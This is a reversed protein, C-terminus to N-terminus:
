DQFFVGSLCAYPGNMNRLRVVLRGTFRYSFYRGEGGGGVAGGDLFRRDERRDIVQGSEPDLVELAADMGDYPYIAGLWNYFAVTHPAADKAKIEVTMAWHDFLAAGTRLTGSTPELASPSERRGSNIVSFYQSGAMNVSEIFDPLKRVDSWNKPDAALLLYGAQGYRGKWRGLTSDDIGLFEAALGATFTQAGGENAANGKVGLAEVIWTYSKGAALGPVRRDLEWGTDDFVIKKLEPDEAVRVRYSAAGPAARWSLLTEGGATVPRSTKFAAPARPAPEDFFVGALVVGNSTEPRSIKIVISGRYLYQIYKGAKFDTLEFPATLPRRTAGDLVEVTFRREVGEWNVFYLTLAHQDNDRMKLDLYLDQFAALGGLRRTKTTDDSYNLARQDATSLALLTTGKQGRYSLSEAYVPLHNRDRNGPEVCYMVQGDGGYAGQWNGGTTGDIKNMTARSGAAPVAAKARAARSRHRNPDEAIVQYYYTGGPRVDGDNLTTKIIADIRNGLGPTFDERTDRYVQYRVARGDERYSEGWGLTVCGLAASYEAHLGQPTGPLGTEGGPKIEFAMTWGVERTAEGTVDVEVTKGILDAYSEVRAAAGKELTFSKVTWLGREPVKFIARLTEKAIVRFRGKLEKKEADWGTVSGGAAPLLHRTTAMLYPQRAVPHLMVTKLEGARVPTKLTSSGAHRGLDRWDWYDWADYNRGAELGVGGFAPDGGLRAPIVKTRASSHNWLMVLHAGGDLAYDFIEPNPATGEDDAQEFLGIPRATGMGEPLPLIRGIVRIAEPSYRTVSSGLMTKGFMTAMATVQAHLTDDDYPEFNKVDPDILKTVRNRYWERIGRKVVAQTLSVKDRESRKADIVGTAADAGCTVRGSPNESVLLGAGGEEKALAFIKRYASTATAAQDEFGGEVGLLMTGCYDFFLGRVGEAKLRRYTQRVHEQYGPDSFDPLKAPNNYLMHGPHASAYDASPISPQLMLDCSAGLGRMAAVWKAITETPATLHGFAHWHADDWWMQENPDVPLDPELRVLPPAYAALGMDKMLRAERLAGATTNEGVSTSALYWLCVPTMAGYGQPHANMATAMTRAYQELAGYPSRESFDILAPDPLYERGPDIRKGAADFTRIWADISKRGGRTVTTEPRAEVGVRHMFEFTTLGGLLLSEMAPAKLHTILMVNAGKGAVRGLLRPCWTDGEGTLVRHDRAPDPGAFVGGEHAADARLPYFERVRLIRRTTNLLGASVTIFGQRDYLCFEIVLDPERERIGRIHLRRGAGLRDSFESQSWTFHCGTLTTSTGVQAYANLVFVKGDGMRMATYSGKLLDFTVRVKGNQLSVRRGSPVVMARGARTAAAWSAAPAGLLAVMLMLLCAFKFRVFFDGWFREMVPM